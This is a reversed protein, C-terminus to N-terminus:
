IEKQFQKNSSVYVKIKSKEPIKSTDDPTFLNDPGEEVDDERGQYEKDELIDILELNDDYDEDLALKTAM